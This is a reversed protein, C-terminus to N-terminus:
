PAVKSCNSMQGYVTLCDVWEGGFKVLVHIEGLGRDYEGVFLQRPENILDSVTRLSALHMDRSLKSDIQQGQHDVAFQITTNTLLLPDRFPQNNLGDVLFGGIGMLAICVLSPGLKGFLSTSFTASEGMPLEILGAILVFIAVWAYALGVRILLDEYIAGPMEGPVTQFLRQIQPALQLPLAVSLWALISGAVLWVLASFWGREVRMALWGALGSVPVCVLLGAIFKLWPLFAHAQNLLFADMGWAWAAFALGVMVGYFLGYRHRAHVVEPRSFSSPSSSILPKMM